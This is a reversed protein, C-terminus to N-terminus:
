QNSERNKIKALATCAARLDDVSMHSLKDLVTTILEEKRDREM